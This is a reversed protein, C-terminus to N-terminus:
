AADEVFEVTLVTMSEVTRSREAAIVKVPRGDVTGFAPVRTVARSLYAVRTGDDTQQVGAIGAYWPFEVPLRAGNRVTGIIPEENM